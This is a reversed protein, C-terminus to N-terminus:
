ILIHPASILDFIGIAALVVRRFFILWHPLSLPRIAISHASKTSTSCSSEATTASDSATYVETVKLTFQCLNPWIYGLMFLHSLLKFLILHLVACKIWRWWTFPFLFFLLPPSKARVIAFAGFNITHRWSHLLFLIQLVIDAFFISHYPWFHTLSDVWLSRFQSSVLLSLWRLLLKLCWGSSLTRNSVAPVAPEYLTFIEFRLLWLTNFCSIM